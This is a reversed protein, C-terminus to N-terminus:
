DNQDQQELGLKHRSLQMARTKNWVIPSFLFTGFFTKQFGYPDFVFLHELGIDTQPEKPEEKEIM